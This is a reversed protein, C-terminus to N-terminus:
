ECLLRHYDLESMETKWIVKKDEAIYLVEHNDNEELAKQAFFVNRKESGVNYILNYDIPLIEGLSSSWIGYKSDRQVIMTINENSRKIIKIEDFSITDIIAKKAINYFFYKEKSNKVLAVTDSWFQIETFSFPIKIKNKWDILGLKDRKKAIYYLSSDGETYPKLASEYISPIKQQSKLDVLGFKGKLLTTITNNRNKTLGAYLPKIIVKGSTDVLGFKGLIKVNILNESLIYFNDYKVPLIQIGSASYLGKKGLRNEIHLFIESNPYNGKEGRINKYYTLNLKDKNLDKLFKVETKKGQYMLLIEGVLALSDYAFDEIKAIYKDFLAWKNSKKALIYYEDHFQINQLSDLLLKKDFDFITWLSDKVGYGIKSQMKVGQYKCDLVIRNDSSLLGFKSDKETRLYDDNLVIADDYNLTVEVRSRSIQGLLKKNSFIAFKKGLRIGIFNKNYAFVDSYQNEVVSKGNYTVLGYRRNKKTKIFNSNLIEIDDYQLPLIEFGTEHMLGYRANRSVKWVGPAIKEIEDFEPKILTNGLKDIMGLRNNVNIIMYYEKNSECLQEHPIYEYKASIAKKGDEDIYGYQENEYFPFYQLNAKKSIKELVINNPNKPFNSIFERLDMKELYFTQLWGWAIKAKKCEPYKEVFDSYTKKDHKASLFGFLANQADKIYINQPYKELFNRYSSLTKVKTEKEFILKDRKTIAESKQTAKPYTQLFYNYDNISNKSLTEQWALENRLKIANETDKAGIFNDLFFQFSMITNEEKARGFAAKEINKKQEEASSLSIGEEVWDSSDKSEVFEYNKIAAKIYFYASDLNFDPNKYVFFYLSYVHFAGASQPNKELEKDLLSKAKEYNEKELQKLASTIKDAFAFSTSLFLSLVISTIFKM